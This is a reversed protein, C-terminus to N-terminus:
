AARRRLRLIPLGHEGDIFTVSLVGEEVRGPARRRRGAHVEDPTRFGLSSHPRERNYWWSWRRARREISRISGFLLLARGCEEKFTRHVREVLAISGSRGVAGYRRRMGRRTVYRAFRRSTFQAGKDTIIWRPRGRGQRAIAEVVLRCAFAAGPEGDCLRMALIKRSFADIV